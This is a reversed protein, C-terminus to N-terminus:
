EAELESIRKDIEAVKDMDPKEKALEKEKEAKLITVDKSWFWAGWLGMLNVEMFTIILFVYCDLQMILGIITKDTLCTIDLGRVFLINLQWLAIVAQLIIPFIILKIKSVTKYRIILSIIPLLILIVAESIYSFNGFNYKVIFSIGILVNIVIGEIIKPKKKKCSILYLLNLNLYYFLCLILVKLWKTDEIFNCIMNFTNNSSIVPYWIGFRLKMVLLIILSFWLLLWIRLILKPVNLIKNIFKKM